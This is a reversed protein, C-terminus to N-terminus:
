QKKFKTVSFEVAANWADAGEETVETRTVVVSAISSQYPLVELLRLVHTVADYSGEFSVQVDLQEFRASVDKVTLSDTTLKVGQEKAVTEVLSLFDVMGEETLVRSTLETREPATEDVLRVLSALQEYQAKAVAAAMREEELLIKKSEVLYTIMVFSGIAFICLLASMGGIIQTNRHMM